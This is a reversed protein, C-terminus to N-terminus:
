STTPASGMVRKRCEDWLWDLDQQSWDGNAMRQRGAKAMIEDGHFHAFDAIDEGDTQDLNNMKQNV